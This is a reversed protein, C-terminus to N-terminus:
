KLYRLPVEIYKAAMNKAYKEVIQFSKKL